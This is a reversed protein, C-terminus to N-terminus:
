NLKAGTFLDYVGQGTGEEINITARQVGSLFGRQRMAEGIAPIDAVTPKSGLSSSGQVHVTQGYHRFAFRTTGEPIPGLNQRAIASHATTQAGASTRFGGPGIEVVGSYSAGFESRAAYSAYENLAVNAPAPRVTPPPNAVTQRFLGKFYDVVARWDFAGSEGRLFRQVGPPVEIRRLQPLKNGLWNFAYSGGLATVARFLGTLPYGAQAVDV